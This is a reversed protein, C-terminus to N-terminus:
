LTSKIKPALPLLTAEPRFYSRLYPIIAAKTNPLTISRQAAAAYSLLLRVADVHGARSAEHLPTWGNADELHVLQTDMRILKALQAGNGSQAAFHLKDEITEAAEASAPTSLEFHVVMTAAYKGQLPLPYGQIISSSEILLMEGPLLTVQRTTGDGTIVEMPWAENLDQAVNIIAYAV